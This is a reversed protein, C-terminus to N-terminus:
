TLYVGEASDIKSVNEELCEGVARVCVCVVGAASLATNGSWIWVYWEMGSECEHLVCEGVRVWVYGYLGFCLLSLFFFFVQVM